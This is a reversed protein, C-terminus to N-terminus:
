PCPDTVYARSKGSLFPSVTFSDARVTVTVAGTEDQRLLDIGLGRVAQAWEASIRENDPFPAATAILVRPRAARLFEPTGSWGSFHRGMAIVDCPLSDAAHALLWQETPLGADSMLLASFKGIEVRLVLADDDARAARLGAPPYLVEVRARDGLPFSAGALAQTPALGMAGLRALARSRTPSRDKLGSDLVREPRLAEALAGVGGLHTADGHTLVLADLRNVGSARLFPLTDAEAFFESGGDVLWAHSACQLVVAGGRGADLVTFRAEMGPPEPPGVYIASGPLSAFLHVVFLLIKALLFNAQNFVEALWPSLVGGALAVAALGLVASALPVAFLNAPISTLSVLHFYFITLPLTALWAAFSVVVLLLAGRATGYYLRLGFPVLRRPLFPDPEVFKVLRRQLPRVLLLILTVAGFSLQFGANFLENTNWALILLAAAGVSNLPTAPRDALLTAALISLMIAARLSAPSLGTVLSYFFLAPIIGGVAARQSCGLMGLVTWLIVAVIGVHLGSVSFLHFTGTERFDAKMAETAGSTDGITMGRNLAAEPTGAVGLALTREIWARSALALRVIPNGGEGLLKADSARFVELQACIGSNALWAAYDFAGPNRPPPCNSIAARVRYRAGYAPPPGNWRVLVRCGPRLEHGDLDLALLRAPFRCRELPSAASAVPEDLVVLTAECTRPELSLRTALRAASSERYEWTQAAAFALGVAVPLALRWRLAALAACTAALAFSWGPLPAFRGLAIGAAACLFLGVCPLRQRLLANVAARLIQFVDVV